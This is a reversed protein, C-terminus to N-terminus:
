HCTLSRNIKAPPSQPLVIRETKCGERTVTLSLPAFEKNKQNREVRVRPLSIQAKGQSDSVASAARESIGIVQVQAGSVPKGGGDTLHVTLSSTITFWSDGAYEGFKAGTPPFGEIVNDEFVSEKSPSVGNGFKALLTAAGHVGARFTNDKLKMAHASDWDVSFIATDAQVLNHTFSVRDGLVNGVSFGYAPQTSLQAGLNDQVAVFTNDNIGVPADKLDTLRMAAAPCQAAHVKVQNHYVLINGLQHGDSEVQIGYTGNIECGQYEQNKDSDITEIVNDYIKVGSANAHIGRGHVPHCKNGYVEIGTGAADICFGNTYTADQSIDNGYIKTGAGNESRIGAQAGGVVINDHILDPLKAASEEDLKISLGRFQYRSTIAKVNNHITNRYVDSGGPLYQSYIAISDPASITIDLDHVTIGTLNNAQGFRMAHSMPAAAAGQVIKGNMLIAHKHNGDCPNGAISKDWCDAALIGFTAKASDSTAYTITHGGLDLTVNDAEISFCTGASQVDRILVYHTNARRLPGCASISRQSRANGEPQGERMGTALASTHVVDAPSVSALVAALLFAPFM